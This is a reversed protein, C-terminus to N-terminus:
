MIPQKLFPTMPSSLKPRYFTWLSIFLQSSPNRTSLHNNPLCVQRLPEWLDRSCPPAKAAPSHETYLRLPVWRSNCCPTILVLAVPSAPPHCYLPFLYLSSVLYLYFSSSFLSPLCFCLFLKYPYWNCPPASPSSVVAFYFLLCSTQNFFTTSAPQPLILPTLPCRLSSLSPTISSFASNRARPPPCSVESWWLWVRVCVDKDIGFERSCGQCEKIGRM